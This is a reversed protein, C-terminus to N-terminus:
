IEAKADRPYRQDNEVQYRLARLTEPDINNGQVSLFEPLYRARCLSASWIQGNNTAAVALAQAEQPTFIPFWPVLPEMLEEAQRFSGARAAIRILGPLFIRPFRSALPAVLLARTIGATAIRTSQYSSLFGFPTTGDISLPAVIVEPRSAIFGAEQPAWQSVLFNKSLLPVFLDCSRLEDLIRRRWDESVELDEHALFAPIGVEGLVEKAQWGFKRDVHSYSIFATVVPLQDAAVTTKTTLM